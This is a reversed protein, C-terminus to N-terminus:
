VSCITPLTLHTYSVAILEAKSINPLDILEKALYVQTKLGHRKNAAMFDTKYDEPFHNSRVKGHTIYFTIENKPKSPETEQALSGISFVIVLILCILRMYFIGRTHICIAM